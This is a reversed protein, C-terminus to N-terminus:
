PVLRALQFLWQVKKTLAEYEKRANEIAKKEEASAEEIDLRKERLQLTNEFLAEDCDPM